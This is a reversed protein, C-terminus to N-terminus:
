RRGCPCCAQTPASARPAYRAALPCPRSCPRNCLPWSLPVYPEGVFVVGPHIAHRQKVELAAVRGGLATAGLAAEVAALAARPDDEIVVLRQAVRSADTRNEYYAILDYREM